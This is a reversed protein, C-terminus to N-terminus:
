NQMKPADNSHSVVHTVQGQDDRRFFVEHGPEDDSRVTRFLDGEVYRLEVMDGLPDMTPMDVVALSDKWRFVLAEGTWPRYDYSGVYDDLNPLASPDDEGEPASTGGAELIDLVVRAYAGVDVGNRNAMMAVAKRSDLDLYLRTNFGPCSGSHGVLTRKGDNYIGYALGWAVSWDHDMWHVRQMERLTNAALVDDPQGDRVGFQWSAFRALDLASSTLGAAPMIGRADYRPLANLVGDRGPFAYGTAVRPERADAPFGAATDAMQLPDLIRQQLYAGFDQGTLEIVIEGALSLGLNSYQFYRSAPYLTEQEGLIQRLEERTPFPFDPGMWYPTDSERPLGSSHTLIGEVTIKPSGEHAQTLNYWPLLDAVGTELSFRGQDRLQMVAIGTFLKSISCIGYITDAEAPTQSALDAYGSAGSWLLEQDDVIAASLAPVRDYARQAELWMEVLALEHTLEDDARASLSLLLVLSGIMLRQMIKAGQKRPRAMSGTDADVTPNCDARPSMRLELL